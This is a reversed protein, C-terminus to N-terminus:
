SDLGLWTLAEEMTRCVRGEHGAARILTEYVRAVGVTMTKSAVLATRGIRGRLASHIDRAYQEVSDFDVTLRTTDLMDVLFPMTRREPQMRAAAATLAGLDEPTVDDFLRILTHAACRTVEFAM